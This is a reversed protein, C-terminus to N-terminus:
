GSANCERREPWLVEAHDSWYGSNLKDGPRKAQQKEEVDNNRGRKM